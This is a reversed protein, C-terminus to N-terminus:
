LGNKRVDMEKELEQSFVVITIQPQHAFPRAAGEAAEANIADYFGKLVSCCIKGNVFFNMITENAAGYWRPNPTFLATIAASAAAVFDGSSISIFVFWKVNLSTGKEYIGCVVLRCIGEQM